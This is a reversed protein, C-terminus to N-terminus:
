HTNIKFVDIDVLDRNMFNLNRFIFIEPKDDIIDFLLFNPSEPRLPLIVSTVGKNNEKSAYLKWVATQSNLSLYIWYQEQAKFKVIEEDKNFLYNLTDPIKDYKFQCVSITDIFLTSKSMSIISDRGEPLQLHFFKDSLLTDAKGIFQRYSYETPDGNIDSYFRELINLSEKNVSIATNSECRASLVKKIEIVEPQAKCGVLVFFSLAYKLLNSM